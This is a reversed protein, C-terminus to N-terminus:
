KEASRKRIRVVGAEETAALGFNMELLRVLGDVNDAALYGSLTMDAAEAAPLEVVLRRAGGHRNMLAIVEPLPTRSFELQPVRWALRRALEDAPMVSIEARRSPDDTPIVARGGVQLMMPDSAVAPVATAPTNEVAVTGETVVVEVSTQALDVAFATGVARVSVAGATVVFPRAPDKTVHFHAEGRLLVVRRERESFEHRFAAGEKLEITSGDALVEHSPKTVTATTARTAREAVRLQKGSDVRLSWTAAAGLVIVVCGTVVAQMRRKRGRSIELAVETLLERQAGAERMWALASETQPACPDRTARQPNDSPM